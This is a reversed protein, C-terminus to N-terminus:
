TQDFLTMHTSIEQGCFKMSNRYIKGKQRSRAKLILYSGVVLKILAFNTKVSCKRYMYQKWVFKMRRLTHVSEFKLVLVPLPTVNKRKVATFNNYQKRVKSTQAEEVLKVIQSLTTDQGVHTAEVLLSGNQNITGGIVSDGPKKMVPMSEGTILSEDATSTGQLVKCDVPIKAGPVVQLVIFLVIFVTKRSVTM